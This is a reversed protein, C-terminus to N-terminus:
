KSNYRNNVKETEVEKKLASLNDEIYARVNPSCKNNDLLWMLYSAPVGTMSIGKHKGYPMPSKDTLAM